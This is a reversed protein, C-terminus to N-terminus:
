DIKLRGTSRAMRVLDSLGYPLGDAEANAPTV